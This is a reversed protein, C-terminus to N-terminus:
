SGPHTFLSRDVAGPVPGWRTSAGQGTSQIPTTGYRNYGQVQLLRIRLLDNGSYYEHILVRILKINQQLNKMQENIQQLEQMSWVHFYM